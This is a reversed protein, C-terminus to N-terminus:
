EFESIPIIESVTAGNMKWIYSNNWLVNAISDPGLSGYGGYLWKQSDSGLVMNKGNPGKVPGFSVITSDNMLWMAVEGTDTNRWLIDAKSDGDFRAAELLLWHSKLDVPKGNAFTVSPIDILEGNKMFFIVFQKNGTEYWLMDDFGDGNFDAIAKLHWNSGLNDILVKNSSISVKNSTSDTTMRWIVIQGDKKGNTCGKENQCQWIVCDKKNGYFNGIGKFVWSPDIEEVRDGHYLSTGGKGVTWVTIAGAWHRLLINSRGAANFHGTGLVSWGIAYGVNKKAVVGGDSNLLWVGLPSTHYGQIDSIGDGDLDSTFSPYSGPGSISTSNFYPTVTRDSTMSVTCKSKDESVTDCGNWSDASAKLTVSTGKVYQYSCRSGCSIGIEKGIESGNRYVEEVGGSTKVTLTYNTSTHSLQATMTDGPKSIRVISVGSLEGSYLNSNPTTSGVFMNIYGEANNGEYWLNTNQGDNFTPTMQYNDATEISVLRNNDDGNPYDNNVKAEDIHYIALGGFNAGLWRELGKDYGKSQRNEVLFYEKTSSSIGDRGPTVRFVTNNRAASDTGAATISVPDTKIPIAGDVWDSWLKLYASPLVPTEGRWTDTSSKGWNGASMLDYAGLGASRVGNADDTRDYLDPWKFILHGLEHIMVGMTTMHKDNPFPNSFSRATKYVEGFMAYGGAGGHYAGVTVIGGNVVPASKKSLGSYHAWINPEEADPYSAEYGAVVIVVALEDTDVYGDGNTDYAAFDVSSAAASIAENVLNIIVEHDEKDVHGVNPHKGPMRLWGVVGDNVTGSTEEALELTVKGYSAKKYFDYISRQDSDTAQKKIFNAFDKPNYAHPPDEFDVLIFLIKTSFKGKPAFKPNIHDRLARKKKLEEKPLNVHRELTPPPLKDARNNTLVPTKGSYPGIYYWYGDDAKKISYGAVTEVWHHWEDGLTRAEFSSGDPQVIKYVTQDAPVGEAITGFGMGLLMVAVTLLTLLMSEAMCRLTCCSKKYINTVLNGKM